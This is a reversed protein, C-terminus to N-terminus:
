VSVEESDGVATSSDIMSPVSEVEPCGDVGITSSEVVVSGTSGILLMSKVRASGFVTGALKKNM